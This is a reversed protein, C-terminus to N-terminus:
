LQGEEAAQVLETLANPQDPNTPTAGLTKAIEAGQALQAQQMAQQQMAARNARIQEKERDSTRLKEPFNSANGDYHTVKDLDYNDWLGQDGTVAVLEAVNGLHRRVNMAQAEKLAQSILTSYEIEIEQGELEEPPDEPPPEEEPPPEVAELPVAVRLLPRRLLTPLAMLDPSFFATPFVALPM